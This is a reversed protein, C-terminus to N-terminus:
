KKEFVINNMQLRHNSIYKNQQIINVYKIVTIDDCNTLSENSNKYVFISKDLQFSKIKLIKKLIVSIWTSM